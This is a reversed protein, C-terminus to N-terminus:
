GAPPQADCAPSYTRHVIVCSCLYTSQICLAAAPQPSHQQQGGAMNLPRRDRVLDGPITGVLAVTLCITLLCGLAAQTYGPLLKSVHQQRHQHSLLQNSLLFIEIPHLIHQSPRGWQRGRKGRDV